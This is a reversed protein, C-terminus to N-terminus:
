PCVKSNTEPAFQPQYNPVDSPKREEHLSVQPWHFEPTWFPRALFITNKELNPHNETYGLHEM